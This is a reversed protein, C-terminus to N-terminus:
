ALSYKPRQAARRFCCSHMARGLLRSLVSRRGWLRRRLDRRQTMDTMATIGLSERELLETASKTSSRAVSSWLASVSYGATKQRM